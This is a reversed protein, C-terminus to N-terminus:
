YFFNDGESKKNREGLFETVTLSRVSLHDDACPLVGQRSLWPCGETQDYVECNERALTYVNAIRVFGLVVVM